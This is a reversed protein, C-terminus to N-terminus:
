RFALSSGPLASQNEDIEHTTQRYNPHNLGMYDIGAEIRAKALMRPKLPQVEGISEHGGREDKAGPRTKPEGRLSFSSLVSSESWGEPNVQPPKNQNKGNPIGQM